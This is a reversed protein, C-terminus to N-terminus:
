GFVDKWTKKIFKKLNLTAIRTILKEDSAPLAGININDHDYLRFDRNVVRVYGKHPVALSLMKM